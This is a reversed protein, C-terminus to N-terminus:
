GQIALQFNGGRSAAESVADIAIARMVPQYNALEAAITEKVGTTVNLNQVVSVSGGNAMNDNSVIRGATDPIFFEPGAEGVPYARNQSVRGGFRRPGGTSTSAGGTAGAGAGGPFISGLINQIVYLRIFESILTKVFKKGIDAFDSLSAEGSLLADALTDSLSRGLDDVSSVLTENMSKVKEVAGAYKNVYEEQRGNQSFMSNSMGRERAGARLSNERRHVSEYDLSPVSNYEDAQQLNSQPFKHTEYVAGSTTGDENKSGYGGFLNQLRRRENMNEVLGVGAQNPKLEIGYKKNLPSNSVADALKKFGENVTELIGALREVAGTVIDIGEGLVNGLIKTLPTLAKFLNGMSEALATTAKTAGEGSTGDGLAKILNKADIGANSLATSLNGAAREMGGGFDSDLGKLLGQIIKDAGEATQGLESIEQRSVGIERALIQYVPIGNTVLIELEELGLGGGAARTVTKILAEFSQIKNITGSAADGLTTLLKTTPAIGAGQLQVYSRTLTEINFPTVRAFDNIFEFAEAGKKASGTVLDLTSQLDQFEANVGVINKIAAVGVIGALVTKLGGLRKTLRQSSKEMKSFSGGIRKEAKSAANSANRMGASLRSHDANFKWNLQQVTAM